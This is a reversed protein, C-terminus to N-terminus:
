VKLPMIIYTYNPNKEPAVKIPSLKENVEIVVKEGEKVSLVDLLYQSNLSIKNNEGIIEIDLKTKEEGFRTEETSIILKKAETDVELLISNNLERAFLNIRKLTLSLDSANVTIKTKFESPIIKKYDPFNGEILRSTLEM